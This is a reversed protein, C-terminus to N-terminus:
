KSRECIGYVIQTCVGDGWRGSQAVGQGVTMYVCPKDSPFTNAWNTFEPSADDRRWEYVGKYADPSKLGIAFKKQSDGKYEDQIYKNLCDNEGRNEFVVLQSFPPLELRCEIDMDTWTGTHQMIWYDSTNMGPACCKNGSSDNCIDVFEAAHSSLIPFLLIISFPIM